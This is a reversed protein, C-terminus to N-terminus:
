DEKQESLNMGSENEQRKTLFSDCTQIIGSSKLLEEVLQKRKESPLSRDGNTRNSLLLWGLFCKLSCFDLSGSGTYRLSEFSTIFSSCGEGTEGKVIHTGLDDFFVWGKEAHVDLTIKGCWECKHTEVIM